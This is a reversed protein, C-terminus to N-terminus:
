RPCARRVVELTAAEADRGHAAIGELPWGHRAHVVLEDAWYDNDELRGDFDRVRAERAGAFQEATPGERSLRAQEDVAAAALEEMRGPDSEFEVTMTYRAPPVVEIGLSVDVGYTGGMRERLRDGLAREAVERVMNLANLEDNSLELPGAFGVMTRAREVVGAPVELHVGRAALRDSM